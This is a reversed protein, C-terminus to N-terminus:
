SREFKQVVLRFRSDEGEGEHNAVADYAKADYAKQLRKCVKDAKNETQFIYAQHKKGSWVDDSCLYATLGKVNPPNPRIVIWGKTIETDNEEYDDEFKPRKRDLIEDEDEEYDDEDSEESDVDKHYLQTHLKRMTVAMNELDDSTEQTLHIMEELLDQLTRAM